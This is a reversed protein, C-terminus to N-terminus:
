CSSRRVKNAVKEEVIRVSEPRQLKSFLVNFIASFSIFGCVAITSFKSTCPETITLKYNSTNHTDLRQCTWWYWPLNGKPWNVMSLCVTTLIPEWGRVVAHQDFIKTWCRGNMASRGHFWASRGVIFDYSQILMQNFPDMDWTQKNQRSTTESRSGFFTPWSMYWGLKAILNTRQLRWLLVKRKQSPRGGFRCGGASAQGRCM